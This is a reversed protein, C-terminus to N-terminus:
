KKIVSTLDYVSASKTLADNLIEAFDNNSFCSNSQIEITNKAISFLVIM